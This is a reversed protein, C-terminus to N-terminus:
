NQTLNGSKEVCDTMFDAGLAATPAAHAGSVQHKDHELLHVGPHDGPVPGSQLRYVFSRFLIEVDLGGHHAQAGGPAHVIRRLFFLWIHGFLDRAFFGFFWFLASSKKVKYGSGTRPCCVWVLRALADGPSLAAGRFWFACPLLESLPLANTNEGTRLAAICGESLFLM